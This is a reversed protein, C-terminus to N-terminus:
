KLIFSLHKYITFTLHKKQLFATLKIQLKKNKVLCFLNDSYNESLRKKVLVFKNNPEVMLM